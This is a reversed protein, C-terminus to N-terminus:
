GSGVDKKILRNQIDFYVLFIVSFYILFFIPGTGNSELASCCWMHTSFQTTNTSHIPIYRIIISMM